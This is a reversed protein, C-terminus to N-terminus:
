RTDPGAAARLRQAIMPLNTNISQVATGVCTGVDPNKGCQTVDNGGISVTILAVQGPHAQLFAEAAELQTQDAYPTAGPGLGPRAARRTRAALSTTTAGACGVNVLQLPHPSAQSAAAVQYAFGDAHQGVDPQFGPRTRTAWRSTTARRLRPRRHRTTTTAATTAPTTTTTAAAATPATTPAPSGADTGSSSCAAAVVALM